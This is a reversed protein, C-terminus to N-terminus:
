NKRLQSQQLLKEDIRHMTVQAKLMYFGLNSLHNPATVSDLEGNRVISPSIQSANELAKLMITWNNYQDAALITEKYDYGLAKFILYYAYAKGQNYYFVNDTRFDIIDSSNERISRELNNNVSKWLDKGARQLFYALDDANKYWIESGNSLDRNYKILHKRAKRYQTNSSPAPMLKNTPSFLWVTGPYKLLTAAEKLHQPTEKEVITRATKESFGNSFNSLAGFMGLQFSPMNDLFYSPFFFPLNPTWMKENVERNILFAMMDVTASQQKNSENIEYSINTDIKSVILGGLPYYLFILSAFGILLLHWWSSIFRVLFDPLLSLRPSVKEKLFTQLRIIFDKLQFKSM